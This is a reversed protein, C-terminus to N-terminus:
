FRLWVATFVSRGPAYNRSAVDATAGVQLCWSRTLDYVTSVGVTHLNYDWGGAGTGRRSVLDDLQVLAMWDPALHVGLTTNARLQDAPEDGRYRYAGEINLFGPLGALDFGHGYLLRAEADVQNDGLPPNVDRDGVPLKVLGQVSLVSDPDTWLARRLFLEALSPGERDITGTSTEVANHEQGLNIGFTLDQTLGYEGYEYLSWRTFPGDGQAPNHDAPGVQARYYSLTTIAFGHDEQQMWPNALAAPAAPLAMVALVLVVVLHRLYGSRTM